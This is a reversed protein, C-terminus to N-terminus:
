ARLIFYTLAIFYIYIFYIIYRLGYKMGKTISTMEEFTESQKDKSRETRGFVFVINNWINGNTWEHLRIFIEQISSDIRVNNIEMFFAFVDIANVGIQSAIAKKNEDHWCPDSDFFGPTDFVNIPLTEIGYSKPGTVLILNFFANM